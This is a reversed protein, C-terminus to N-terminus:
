PAAPGSGSALEQSEFNPVAELLTTVELTRRILADTPIILVLEQGHDKLLRRLEFLITVGASDVYRVETLDLVLRLDQNSVSERLTRSVAWANSADIEGRLRAIRVGDVLELRIDAIDTM